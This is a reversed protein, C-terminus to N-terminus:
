KSDIKVEKGKANFYHINKEEFEGNEPNELIQYTKSAIKKRGNFYFSNCPNLDKDLTFETYTKNEDDYVTRWAFYTLKPNNKFTAAPKSDISYYYITETKGDSSLEHKTYHYNLLTTMDQKNGDLYFTFDSGTNVFERVYVYGEKQIITKFNANLYSKLLTFKNDLQEKLLYYGKSLDDSEEIIVKPQNKIFYVTENTNEVENLYSKQIIQITDGKFLFMNEFTYLQSTEYNRVNLKEIEYKDQFFMHNSLEVDIRYSTECSALTKNNNSILVQQPFQSTFKIDNTNLWVEKTARNKADLEFYYYNSPNAFVFLNGLNEGTKSYFRVVKGRKLNEESPGYNIKWKPNWRVTDYHHIGNMDYLLQSESEYYYTNDELNNKYTTRIFKIGDISVIEGKENTYFREIINKGTTDYKYNVTSYVDNRGFTTNFFAPKGFEDFHTEKTLYGQENYEFKISAFSSYDPRFVKNKEDIFSQELINGNKDNKILLKFKKLGSSEIPYFIEASKYGNEDYLYDYYSQPILSGNSSYYEIKRVEFNTYYTRITTYKQNDIDQEQLDGSHSHISIDTYKKQKNFVAKEFYPDVNSGNYAFERKEFTTPNIETYVTSSFASESLYLTSKTVDTSANIPTPNFIDTNILHSLIQVKRNKNEQKYFRLGIDGELDGFVYKELLAYYSLGIDSKTRIEIRDVYGNGYFFRYCVSSDHALIQYLQKINKYEFRFHHETKAREESIPYTGVIEQFYNTQIHKYYQTRNQSFLNVSYFM